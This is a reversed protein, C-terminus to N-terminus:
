HQRDAAELRCPIWPQKSVIIQPSSMLCGLQTTPVIRVQGEGVLNRVAVAFEESMASWLYARGHGFEMNGHTVYGAQQGAEQLESFTVSRHQQVYDVVFEELTM